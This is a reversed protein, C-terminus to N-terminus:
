MEHLKGRPIIARCCRHQTFRSRTGLREDQNASEAFLSIRWMCGFSREIADEWVWVCVSVNSVYDIEWTSWAGAGRINRARMELADHLKTSQVCVLLDAFKAFAVCFPFALNISKQRTCCHCILRRHTHKKKVDFSQHSNIKCSFPTISIWAPANTWTKKLATNYM